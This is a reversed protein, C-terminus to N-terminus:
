DLARLALRHGLWKVHRNRLTAADALSVLDDFTLPLRELSDVAEDWFEEPCKKMMEADERPVRTGLSGVM